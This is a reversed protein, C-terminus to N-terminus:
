PTIAYDVGYWKKSIKSLTGDKHMWGIIAELKQALAQDGIDIAVALPEYFVPDGIVKVPYGEGITQMIAPMASIVADLKQGPELRLDDLALLSTEYSQIQPNEIQYSFAPAADSDIILNKQLYREFTTSAGTGIRKGNLQSIANFNSDEHVAVSAPTFYYVAPFVLKKARKKTPAMSGVHLDWRRNWDGITIHDWSPTVFEIEVGMRRAIERAVDVDFGEMRNDENLFSQPPWNADTAVKILRKAVIDDYVEGALSHHNIGLSILLGVTLYKFLQM